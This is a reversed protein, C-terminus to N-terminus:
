DEVNLEILRSYAVDNGLESARRLCEIAENLNAPVGKGSELMFGLYCWADANDGQEAAKRFWRFVEAASQPVGVGELCRTAMEFCANSDGREAARQVAAAESTQGAKRLRERVNALNQVAREYGLDVSRQFYKLAEHYNPLLQTSYYNGLCLGAIGLGKDLAKNLWAIGEHENVETGIGYLYCQGLKFHARVHGQEAAQKYLMFAQKHEGGKEYEVGQSYLVELANAERRAIVLVDAVMGCIIQRAGPAVKELASAPRRALTFTNTERM